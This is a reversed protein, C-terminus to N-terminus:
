CDPDNAPCGGPVLGTGAVADNASVFKTKVRDGLGTVAPIAILAILALLLVYEVMSAGRQSHPSPGSPPIAPSGAM